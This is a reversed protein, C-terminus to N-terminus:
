FFYYNFIYITSVVKIWKVRQLFKRLVGWFDEVSVELPVTLHPGWVHPLASSLGAYLGLLPAFDTLRAHLMHFAHLAWLKYLAWRSSLNASTHGGWWWGVGVPHTENRPPHAATRSNARTWRRIGSWLQARNKATGGQLLWKMMNSWTWCREAHTSLSQREISLLRFKTTGM